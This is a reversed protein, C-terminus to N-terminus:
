HQHTASGCWTPCWCCCRVMGLSQGSSCSRPWLLVGCPQVATIWWLVCCYFTMPCELVGTLLCTGAIACHFVAQAVWGALVSTVGGTACPKHVPPLAQHVSPSSSSGIGVFLDNRGLRYAPLSCFENGGKGWGFCKRWCICDTQPM